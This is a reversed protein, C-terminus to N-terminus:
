GRGNTAFNKDNIMQQTQRQFLRGNMYNNVSANVTIWKGIEYGLEQMTGSDTLPLVGERGAEGRIVNYGTPVGRGPNNVIGGTAMKLNSLALGISGGLVTNAGIGLQELTSKLKTTDPVQFETNIKITTKQNNLNNLSDKVKDTENRFSKIKEKSTESELALWLLKSAANTTCSAYERISNNLYEQVSIGQEKAAKEVEIAKTENYVANKLDEYNKGSAELLANYIRTQEENLMGQDYYYKYDDLLEKIHKSNEDIIKSSSSMEGSFLMCVKQIDNYGEIQKNIKDIHAAESTITDNLYDLYIALEKSGKKTADLEKKKSATLQKSDEINKKNNTSIDSNIERLEKMGLVIEKIDEILDRGTVANYILNVGLAIVGITGAVKLVRNLGILGTEGGGILKGINGIWGSIKSAGFVIGLAIGVKSLWEWNEKLWNAMEQLKFVIGQDLEPINILGNNSSLTSSSSSSNDQAINMEDFSYQQTQKNLNKQSDAQKQLAKANANAIFDIGTLAKIFENLYGLGKLLTNSIMEIIPSLFSGLGIWVSQLKNALETNQSLYANSAKSVTAFISGVGFLSFAFRKLNSTGKNFSKSIKDGANTGENGADEMKNKLSILQNKTKEINAELELRESENMRFQIPIKNESELTKIMINLKNELSKYQAEFDKTELETGIRIKGDYNM